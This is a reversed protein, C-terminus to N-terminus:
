RDFNGDDNNQNGFWNDFQYKVLEKMHLAYVFMKEVSSSGYSLESSKERHPLRRTRRQVRSYVRDLVLEPFVALYEPFHAAQVVPVEQFTDEFQVFHLYYTVVCRSDWNITFTSM